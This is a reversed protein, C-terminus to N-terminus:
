RLIPKFYGEWTMEYTPRGTVISWPVLLTVFFTAFDLMKIKWDAQKALYTVGDQGNPVVPLTDFKGPFKPVYPGALLPVKINTKLRQM